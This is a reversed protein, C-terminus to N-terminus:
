LSLAGFVDNQSSKSSISNWLESLHALGPSHSNFYNNRIFVKDCRAADEGCM